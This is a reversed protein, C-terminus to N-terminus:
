IERIDEPSEPIRPNPESLGLYLNALGKFRKVQRPGLEDGERGVEELLDNIQKRTSRVGELENTSVVEDIVLGRILAGLAIPPLQRMKQSVLREIRLIKENLLSLERPVALFLEGAETVIGTRFTSEAERRKEALRKNESFREPTPDKHFIKELPQYGM